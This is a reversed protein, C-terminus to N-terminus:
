RLLPNTRLVNSSRHIAADSVSGQVQRTIAHALSPSPSPASHCHRSRRDDRNTPSAAFTQAGCARRKQFTWNRRRDHACQRQHPAMQKPVGSRLPAPLGYVRCAKSRARGSRANARGACLRRHSRHTQFSAGPFSSTLLCFFSTFEAMSCRYVSLLKVPLASRRHVSVQLCYEEGEDAKSKCLLWM